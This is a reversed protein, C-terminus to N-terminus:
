DRTNRLVTEKNSTAKKPKINVSDVAKLNLHHIRSYLRTQDNTQLGKEIFEALAVSGRNHAKYTM